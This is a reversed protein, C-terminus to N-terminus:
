LLTAETEKANSKEKKIIDGIRNRKKKFSLIKLILKELYRKKGIKTVGEIYIFDVLVSPIGCKNAGLIDTFIQDGIVIVEDKTVGLLSIAKLYGATDPKNANAIYLTNINKNFREIRAISNNSLFLTKLGIGHIYRFLSDVEDNSDDGHHVLTNDIDFIIAKYGLSYIKEYDIAFVSNIHECPYYKKLM